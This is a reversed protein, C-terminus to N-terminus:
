RYTAGPAWYEELAVQAPASWVSEEAFALRDLAAVVAGEEAASLAGFRPPQRDPPRLSALLTDTANSAPNGINQLAHRLLHPLYYRWSVADLHHLGWAYRELYEPTVADITPEFPPAQAYDDIANGARLSM